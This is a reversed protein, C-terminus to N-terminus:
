LSRSGKLSEKGKVHGKSRDEAVRTTGLAMEMNMGCVLKHPPWWWNKGDIVGTWHALTLGIGLMRVMEVNKVVIHWM